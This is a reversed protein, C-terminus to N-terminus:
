SRGAAKDKETKRGKKGGERMRRSVLVICSFLILVSELGKFFYFLSAKWTGRHQHHEIELIGISMLIANTLPLSSTGPQLALFFVRFLDITRTSAACM